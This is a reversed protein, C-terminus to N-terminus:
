SLNLFIAHGIQEELWFLGKGTSNNESNVRFSYGFQSGEAWDTITIQSLTQSARNQAKFAAEKACWLSIMSPASCIEDPESVRELIKKSVRSEVELDFGLVFPKDVFCYGGLSSCHSVSYSLDAFQPLAGPVMVERLLDIPLNKTESLRQALDARILSRYNPKLASWSESMKLDINAGFYKSLSANLGRINSM